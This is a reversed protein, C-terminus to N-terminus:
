ILNSYVEIYKSATNQITFNQLHKKNAKILALYYDYNQSIKIILDKLEVIDFPSFLLQRMEAIFIDNIGGIKSAITPLGAMLGELAAISFTEHKSPVVLIDFEPLLNEIEKVYGRFNIRNELNLSQVLTVLENKKPGEGFIDLTFYNPLRKLVQIAIEINKVERLSGVCVLKGKFKGSLRWNFRKDNQQIGNHIVIIKSKDIKFNNIMYNKLDTSVTAIKDFNNYLIKMLAFHFKHRLAIRHDRKKLYTHITSIVPKKPFIIKYLGAIFDSLGMNCHVIDPNIKKILMIIYFIKFIQNHKKLQKSHQIVNLDYSKYKDRTPDLSLTTVVINDYNNLERVLEFSVKEAGGGAFSDIVFLIKFPIKKGCNKKM